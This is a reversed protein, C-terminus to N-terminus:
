LSESEARQIKLNKELTYLPKITSVSFNNQFLVFLLLSYYHIKNTYYVKFYLTNLMTYVIVVIIFFLHAPEQWNLISQIM